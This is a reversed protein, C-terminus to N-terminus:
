GPWQQADLSEETATRRGFIEVARGSVNLYGDQAPGPRSSSSELGRVSPAPDAPCNKPRLTVATGRRPSLYAVGVGAAAAGSCWARSLKCVIHTQM